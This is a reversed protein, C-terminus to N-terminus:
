TYEFLFVVKSKNTIKMDNVKVFLCGKVVLFIKNVYSFANAM